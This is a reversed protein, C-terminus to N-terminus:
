HKEYLYTKYGEFSYGSILFDFDGDNDIDGFDYSSFSLDSLEEGGLDTFTLSDLTILGLHTIKMLPIISVIGIKATAESSIKSTEGAAIIELIGDNNLDKIAFKVNFLSPFFNDGM